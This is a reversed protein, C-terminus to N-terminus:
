RTATEVPITQGRGLPRDTEEELVVLQFQPFRESMVHWLRNCNAHHIFEPWPNAIEDIRAALDPRDAYTAVAPRM